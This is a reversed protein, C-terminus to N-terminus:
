DMHREGHRMRPGEGGVWGDYGGRGHWEPRPGWMTGWHDNDRPRTAIWVLLGVIAGFMLTENKM